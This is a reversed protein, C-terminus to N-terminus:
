RQARVVVEEGVPRGLAVLVAEAAALVRDALAPPRPRVWDWLAGARLVRSATFSSAAHRASTAARSQAFGVSRLLSLLAPASPLVLHRPPEFVCAFRGFLRATLASPNPYVLVLRGAPALLEFCRRLARAPDPLHELVHSMYVLDFAGPEYCPSDLTGVTVACGSTQRAREAAVPDVDLGQADWGVARLCFLDIGTGPGVELCRGQRGVPPELGDVLGFRARRRLSSSLALASGALRM